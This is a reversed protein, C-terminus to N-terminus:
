LIENAQAPMWPSPLWFTKIPSRLIEYEIAKRVELLQRDLDALNRLSDQRLKVLEAQVERFQAQTQAKDSLLGQITNKQQLIQIRNVAGVTALPEIQALITRELQYSKEQSEIRFRLSQVRADFANEQEEFRRKELRIKEELTVKRKQNIDPDFRLLLEPM